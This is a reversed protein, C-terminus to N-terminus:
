KNVSSLFQDLATELELMAADVQRQTARFDKEIKRVKNITKRLHKESGKPYEGVKDGEKADRLIAQAEEMLATLQTKVGKVNISQKFTDLATQLEKLSTDIQLQTASNQEIMKAKTIADNFVQKAEVPYEGIRDGEIANEHVNQAIKILETLETKDGEVNISSMFSDLAEQLTTVADDVQQQTAFVEEQVQIAALIADNLTEKTGVPYEGVNPGEVAVDHIDSADKILSELAFKDALEQGAPLTQYLGIESMYVSGRAKLIRIRFEKSTIPNSLLVIRKYGIAQNTYVQKWEGNADRVDIAFSEVQQGHNIDEQLVVKDVTVEKPLSFTLSSPQTGTRWSTNYEGDKVANPNEGNTASITTRKTHNIAFDRKISEHWEKLRAVDVEAFKGRKDPPINLLLVSNRAVSQYYINRLQEVSKPQQYDHYFWGSRISVDVESPWWTLYEMGNAAADALITRSGLDPSRYSPYYYQRGDEGTAAALVSWENDRAWGSENGVWRVDPGTVAIVANPQLENILKYYSDWDYTEYSDGPIHGQAGDFWVEDIEGYETLVEYLQNMFFQGYDTAPLQFSPFESKGIRDDNEVLTPITREVRKSGNGFIGDTYAKHDAPSLYVGVKIGYKRMSNVFERLVDGKGDRWSSGAVGFKTYRSPYLLFGDHHKVTLVAMKFGSEKLTQAWQDTDLDSPQFKNPDENFNGWEVDYYTNIGYHLFATQEYQQWQVQKPTPRVLSAKAGISATCENGKIPIRYGPELDTPVICPGGLLGLFDSRFDGEMQAFAVGYVEGALSTELSAMATGAYVITNHLAKPKQELTLTEELQEEGLWLSVDAGNDNNHKYVLSLHVYEENLMGDVPFSKVKQGGSLIEFSENELSRRVVVAGALDVLVGGPKISVPNIVIETVSDGILEGSNVLPANPHFVIRSKNGDLEMRGLGSIIGGFVELQGQVIDDESSHYETGEMSGIWFSSLSRDIRSLKMTKLFSSTFEGEFTTVVARTLSGKFGRNSGGPHVENGFGIEANLNNAKPPKGETSTVTPQELGDLFMRMKAGTRSPEYVIAISHDKGVVPAPISKKYSTWKGNNNVDFGYEIESASSYRVYINGGISLLTDFSVPNPDPKFETEVVLAKELTNTAFLSDRPNFDIGSQSGNLILRGQNIEENGARRSIIGDMIEGTPNTYFKDTSFVGGFGIDLIEANQQGENNQTSAAKSINPSVPISTVILLLALFVFSLRNVKRKVLNTTFINENGSRTKFYNRGKM